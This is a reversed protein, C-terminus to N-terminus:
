RKDKLIGAELLCWLLGLVLGVLLACFALFGLIFVGLPVEIDGNNSVPVQPLGFPLLLAIALAALIGRAIWKSM